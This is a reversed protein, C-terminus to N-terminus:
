RKTNEYAEKLENGGQILWKKFAEKKRRLSERVVENWWWTGRELHIGRKTGGCMEEAASMVVTKFLNEAELRLYADAELQYKEEM